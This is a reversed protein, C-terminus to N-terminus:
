TAPRADSGVSWLKELAYFERVRPMMVHVVVDGLDVLVWEAAQEGEVGLARFGAQKTKRIVNDALSKVHRSSTGSAIVMRDTISTLKSVDLTRIDVGKLEELADIVLALLKDVQAAPM